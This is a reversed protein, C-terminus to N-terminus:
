PPQLMCTPDVKDDVRRPVDVGIEDLLGLEETSLQAPAPGIDWTCGQDPQLVEQDLSKLEGHARNPM